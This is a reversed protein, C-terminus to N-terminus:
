VFVVMGTGLNYVFHLLIAGWLCNTRRYVGSCAFHLLLIFCVHLGSVSSFDIVGSVGWRVPYHALLFFGATIVSCCWGWSILGRLRTQIIGRFIIEENFVGVTFIVMSLLSPWQIHLTHNFVVGQVMALSGVLLVALVAGLALSKGLGRRHFGLTRKGSLWVIGVAVGLGLLGIFINLSAMVTLPLDMTYLKGQGYLLLMQICVILLALLGDRKGYGQVTDHYAGHEWM